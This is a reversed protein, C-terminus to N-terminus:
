QLVIDFAARETIGRHVVDVTLAWRGLMHLLMGDVVFRGPGIKSAAPEVNMGHSHDPMEAAVAALEVDVPRSPDAADNVEILLRFTENLPVQSPDTRYGIELRGFSSVRKRGLFPPRPPPSEESAGVDAQPPSDGGCAACALILVPLVLRGPMCRVATKM